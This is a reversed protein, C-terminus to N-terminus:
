EILDYVQLWDVHIEAMLHDAAGGLLGADGSPLVPTSVTALAGGNAGFHLQTGTDELTLINEFGAPNLLPSATWPQLTTLVGQRWLQIQYQTVGDVMFLYFNAPDQYRGIFGSYGNPMMDVITMSSDIRYHAPDALAITSWTLRGPWLQM